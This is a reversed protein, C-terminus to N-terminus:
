WIAGLVPPPLRSQLLFGKAQEGTIIGGIPKLAQFHECFRTWEQPTVVWPDMIGRLYNIRFIYLYACYNINLYFM